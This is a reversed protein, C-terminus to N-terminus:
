PKLENRYKNSRRAIQILANCDLLHLKNEKYYNYLAKHEFDYPISLFGPIKKFDFAHSVHLFIQPSAREMNQFVKKTYQNFELRSDLSVLHDVFSQFENGKLQEDVYILRPDILSEYLESTNQLFGTDRLILKSWLLPKSRPEDVM